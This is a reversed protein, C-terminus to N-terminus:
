IKSVHLDFGANWIIQNELKKVHCQKISSAKHAPTGDHQGFLKSRHHQLFSREESQVGSFMKSLSVKQTSQGVLDVEKLMPANRGKAFKKKERNRRM